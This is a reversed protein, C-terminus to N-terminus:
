VCLVGCVCVCTILFYGDYVPIMINERYSHHVNCIKYLWPHCGVTM